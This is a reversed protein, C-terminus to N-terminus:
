QFHLDYNTKDCQSTGCLDLCLLLFRHWTSCKERWYLIYLIASFTHKWATLRVWVSQSCVIWERYIAIHSCFFFSFCISKLQIIAKWQISFPKTSEIQYLVFHRSCDTFIHTLAWAFFFFIFILSLFFIYIKISRFTERYIIYKKWQGIGLMCLFILVRWMQCHVHIQYYYSSKRISTIFPIHYCTFLSKCTFRFPFSITIQRITPTQTHSPKQIANSFNKTILILTFQLTTTTTIITDTAVSIVIYNRNM